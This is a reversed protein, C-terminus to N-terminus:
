DGKMQCGPKSLGACLMDFQKLIYQKTEELTIDGQGDGKM